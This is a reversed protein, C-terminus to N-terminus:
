LLEGFEFFSHFYPLGNPGPPLNTERNRRWLVFAGAVSVGVLIGTTWRGSDLSQKLTEPLAPLLARIESVRDGLADRLQAFM